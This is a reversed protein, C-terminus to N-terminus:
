VIRKTPLTLHTYSVARVCARVFSVFRNGPKAPAAFSLLGKVESTTLVYLLLLLLHLLPLLPLENLKADRQRPTSLAKAGRWGRLM